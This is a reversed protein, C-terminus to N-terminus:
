SSFLGAVFTFPLVVVLGLLWSINMKAFEHDPMLICVVLDVVVAGVIDSRTLGKPTSFMNM